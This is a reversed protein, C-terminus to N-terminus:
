KLSNEERTSDPLCSEFRPCVDRLHCNSRGVTLLFGDEAWVADDLDLGHETVEIDIGLVKDIRKDVMTCWSGITLNPTRTGYYDKLLTIAVKKKLIKGLMKQLDSHCILREVTCEFRELMPAM